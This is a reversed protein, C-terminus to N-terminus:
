PTKIAFVNSAKADREDCGRRQAGVVSRGVTM